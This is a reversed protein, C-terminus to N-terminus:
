FDLRVIKAMVASAGAMLVAAVALMMRGTGTEWLTSIYGPAATRMFLFM